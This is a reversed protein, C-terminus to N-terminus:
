DEYVEALLNVAYGLGAYYAPEREAWGHGEGSSERIIARVAEVYRLVRAPDHRAIHAAQESGPAGEDFVVIHGRPSCMDRVEGGSNGPDRHWCPDHGGAHAFQNGSQAAANAAAEDEDLWAALKEENSSM